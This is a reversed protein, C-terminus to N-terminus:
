FCVSRCFHLHSLLNRELDTLSCLVGHPERLVFVVCNVSATLLSASFYVTSMPFFALLFSLFFFFPVSLIELMIYLFM